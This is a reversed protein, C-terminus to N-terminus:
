AYALKSMVKGHKRYFERAFKEAKTPKVTKKAKPAKKIKLNKTTM